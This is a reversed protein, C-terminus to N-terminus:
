VTDDSYQKKYTDYNQMINILEPKTLGTLQSVLTANYMNTVGSMQVDVYSQFQQKSIQMKSMKLEQINLEQKICGTCSLVITVLM